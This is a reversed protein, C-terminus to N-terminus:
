GAGTQQAIPFHGPQRSLWDLIRAPLAARGPVDDAAPADVAAPVTRLTQFRGERLSRELGGLRRNMEAMLGGAAAASLPTRALQVRGSTSPQREIAVLQGRDAAYLAGGAYMRRLEGGANFQYVPDSGFYLSLGGSRRFGAVLVEGNPVEGGPQLDGGSLLLEAREVLATMEALLDEREELIRTM